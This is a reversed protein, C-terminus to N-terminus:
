LPFPRGTRSNPSDHRDACPVCESPGLWVEGAPATKFECKGFEGAAQDLDPQLGLWLQQIKLSAIGM